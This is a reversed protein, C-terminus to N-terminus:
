TTFASSGDNKGIPEPRAIEEAFGISCCFFTLSILNISTEDLKKIEERDYEVKCDRNNRLIDKYETGAFPKRGTLRFPTLPKKFYINKCFM